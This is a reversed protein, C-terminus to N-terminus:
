QWIESRQSFKRSNVKIGWSIMVFANTKSKLSFLFYNLLEFKSLMLLLMKWYDRLYMLVDLDIQQQM